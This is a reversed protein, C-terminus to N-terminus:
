LIDISQKWASRGTVKINYLLGVDSKKRRCDFLVTILSCCVNTDDNRRVLFHLSTQYGPNNIDAQSATSLVPMVYFSGRDTFLGDAVIFHLHPHGRSEM